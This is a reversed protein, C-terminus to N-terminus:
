RPGSPLFEYECPCQCKGEHGKELVCVHSINGSHEINNIKIKNDVKITTALCLQKPPEYKRPTKYHKILQDSM